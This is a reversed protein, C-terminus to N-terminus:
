LTKVFFAKRSELDDKGVQHFTLSKGPVLDCFDEVNGCSRSWERKKVEVLPGLILLECFVEVLLKGVIVSECFDRKLQLEDVPKEPLFCILCIFCVFSM